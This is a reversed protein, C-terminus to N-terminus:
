FLGFFVSVKIELLGFDSFTELVVIRTSHSSDLPVHHIASSPRFLHSWNYRYINSKYCKLNSTSLLVRIKLCVNLSFVISSLQVLAKRNTLGM